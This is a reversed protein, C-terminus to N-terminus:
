RSRGGRRTRCELGALDSDGDWVRPEAWANALDRVHEAVKSRSADDDVAMAAPSSTEGGAAATFGTAGEDIHMLLDSVTYSECPTARALDNDDVQEILDALADSAARFDIM